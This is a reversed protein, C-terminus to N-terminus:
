AKYKCHLFRRVKPLELDKLLKKAYNTQPIFIYEKTNM